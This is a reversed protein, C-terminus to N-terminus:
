PHGEDNSPSRGTLVTSLKGTEKFCLVDAIRAHVHNARYNASESARAIASPTSRHRRRPELTTATFGQSPRFAKFM